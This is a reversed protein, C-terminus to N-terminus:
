CPQWIFRIFILYLDFSIRVHSQAALNYIEDVELFLSSIIDHEIFEFNDYDM